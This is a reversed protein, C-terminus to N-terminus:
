RFEPLPDDPASLRPGHTITRPETTSAADSAITHEEESEQLDAIMVRYYGTFRIVDIGAFQEATRWQVTTTGNEVADPLADMAEGTLEDYDCVRADEPVRDVETVEITPNM